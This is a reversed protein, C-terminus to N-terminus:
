LALVYTPRKGTRGEGGLSRALTHDHTFLIDGSPSSAYLNLHPLEKVGGTKEMAFHTAELGCAVCKTGKAKFTFLRLGNTHCEHGFVLPRDDPKKDSTILPLVQELSLVMLRDMKRGM